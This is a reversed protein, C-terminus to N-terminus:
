HGNCGRGVSWMHSTGLRDHVICSYTARSLVVGVELRMLELNVLFVSNLHSKKGGFLDISAKKLGFGLRGIKM